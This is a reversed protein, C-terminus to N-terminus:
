PSGSTSLGFRLAKASIGGIGAHFSDSLNNMVAAMVPANKLLFALGWGRFYAVGGRLANLRAGRADVNVNPVAITQIGQVRLQEM